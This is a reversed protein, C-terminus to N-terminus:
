ATYLLELIIFLTFMTMLTFRNALPCEAPVSAPHLPQDNVLFLKLEGLYFNKKGEEHTVLSCREKPFFRSQDRKM